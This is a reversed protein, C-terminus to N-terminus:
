ENSPMQVIEKKYGNLIHKAFDAIKLPTIKRIISVFSTVVDINDMEYTSLVSAWYSNYELLEERKKLKNEVVKLLDQHNPGESAIRELESNAINMLKKYLNKNTDFFLYLLFNEQPRKGTQGMVSTGYTGGEQERLTRTYVINLLDSLVGMYTQNEFSYQLDGNYFMYVTTKPVEMKREFCTSHNNETVKLGVDKWGDKKFDPKLSALYKEALMRFNRSDIKGAFSFTFDNPNSFRDCYYSFALDYNVKDYDDEKLRMQLPHNGYVIATISDSIAMMPNLEQDKMAAKKRQIFAQFAERDQRPAIFYLHILQMMTELDNPSCYGNMGETYLNIFPKVSVSKGSLVKPLDSASYEGVGGIQIIDNLANLTYPNSQDLASLGGESVASMVIEDERLDTQKYVVKVGNSLILETADLEPIYRESYIIGSEPIAKILQSNLEKELYPEVSEGSAKKFLEKLDDKTPLSDSEKAPVTMTIVVNEDIVLNTAANNIEKLTIKQLCQKYLAYETEVDPMPENTLFNAMYKRALSSNSRKTRNDYKDEIYKLFDKKAREFEAQTFGHQRMRNNEHVLGTLAREIGKADIANAYNQWANKTPAIYFIDYYGGNYIFPPNPKLSLEEMRSNFMNSIMNNVFMQEWYATNGRESYPTIDHKYFLQIQYSTQEPDSCIAVIPEKNDAILFQTREAANDPTKIDSFMLKIKKEMADVDVDGIVIIGQLDPRYWKHYYDRLTRYEFNAIVESLGLPLRNGYPSDPYMQPFLNTWIRMQADNRTRIEELIVGRENDIEDKELAIFGSWDHLILLCTDVLGPNTTPVNTILYTTEDIGTAANLNESFKIGQSQLYDRLMMGPLNKTGNFAMHELFHALGRQNEEELISGVKQVIFFDARDAPKENHHIYYTLGNKLVGYRLSPDKPVQLPDNQAGKMLISSLLFFFLLVTKM